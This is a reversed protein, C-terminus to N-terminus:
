FALFSVLYLVFAQLVTIDRTTLLGSKQIANECAKQCDALVNLKSTNFVTRCQDDPMSNVASYCVAAGLADTSHHGEPYELYTRGSIMWSFLSPRHLIKIIPDVQRLYVECLRRAMDKNQHLPVYGSTWNMDDPPSADSTFGLAAFGGDSVDSQASSVAPAQIIENDAEGPQYEM